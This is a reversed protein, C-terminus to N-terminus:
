IAPILLRWHAGGISRIESHDFAGFLATPSFMENVFGCGVIGFSTRLKCSATVYDPIYQGKTLLSSSLAGNFRHESRAADRSLREVHDRHCRSKDRRGDIRFRLVEGGPAGKRAFSAVGAM